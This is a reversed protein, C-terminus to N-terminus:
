PSLFLSPPPSCSLSLSLPPFSLSCCHLSSAALLLYSPPMTPQTGEEAVHKGQKHNSRRMRDAHCEVEEPLLPEVDRPPPIQTPSAHPKEKRNKKKKKQPTHTNTRKKKKKKQKSPHTYTQTHTHVYTHTHTHPACSSLSLPSPFSPPLFPP